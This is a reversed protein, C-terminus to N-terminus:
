YESVRNKRHYKTQSTKATLINYHFLKRKINGIRSKLVMLKNGPSSFCLRMGYTRIWHWRGVMRMLTSFQAQVRNMLSARPFRLNYRPYPKNQRKLKEIRISAGVKKKKVMLKFHDKLLSAPIDELVIDGDAAAQNLIDLARDTRALVLSYKQAYPYQGKKDRIWPDMVSIDSFEATHDICTLCRNPTYFWALRNFAYKINLDHLKKITGDRLTAQVGGPWQDGGRYELKSIKEPNLRALQLLKTTANYELTSHCALGILLPVYQTLKEQASELKRYSHIHCPLGVIATKKHSRVISSALMMQPVITYKSQACAIIADTSRAFIPEAKWPSDKRMSCALAQDIRHSKLLHVLLGTVFGGSSGRSRITSETSYGVCARLVVGSADLPLPAKNFISQYLYQFDVDASCGLTCVSCRTCQLLDTESIAPFFDPDHRIIGKPCASLCYGCRTCLGQEVIESPLKAHM